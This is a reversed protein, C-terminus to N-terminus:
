WAHGPLYNVTYTFACTMSVWPVAILGVASLATLVILYTYSAPFIRLTRRLYFLRLSIGGTAALESMLLSTILFGSIVFFVTVGLHAYNGIGLNVNRFNRTGSLHGLLVMLISVARLGDLSPMRREISAHGDATSM